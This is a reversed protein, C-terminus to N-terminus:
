NWAQLERGFVRIQQLVGERQYELYAAGAMLALGFVLGIVWLAMPATTGIRFVFFGLDTLMAATSVTLLSRSRLAFSAAGFTVTCILLAALWGWSIQDSLAVIPTAYIFSAGAATVHRSWV